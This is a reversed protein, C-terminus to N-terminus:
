EVKLLDIILMGDANGDLLEEFIENLDRGKVVQNAMVPNHKLQSCLRKALQYAESNPLCFNQDIERFSLLSYLAILSSQRYAESLDSKFLNEVIIIFHDQYQLWTKATNLDLYWLMIRGYGWMYSEKTSHKKFLSFYKKQFEDKSSIRALVKIYESNEITMDLIKYLFEFEGLESLCYMKGIWLIVFKYLETIGRTRAARDKKSERPIIQYDKILSRLLNELHQTAKILILTNGLSQLQKSPIYRLIDGRLSNFYINKVIDKIEITKSSISNYQIITSVLERLHLDINPIIDQNRTISEISKKAKKERDEIISKIPIYSVKPPDIMNSDIKKGIVKQSNIEEVELVELLPDQGVKLTFHIEVNIPKNNESLDRAISYVQEKGNILMPERNVKIPLIVRPRDITFSSKVEGFSAVYKAIFKRATQGEYCIPLDDVESPIKLELGGTVEFSIEDLYQGYLAFNNELKQQLIIFFNNTSLNPIFLANQFQQQLVNRIGSLKTYSSLLVFNYNQNECIIHNLDSIPLHDFVIDELNKQSLNYSYFRHNIKLILSIYESSTFKINQFLNIKKIYNFVALLDNTDLNLGKVIKNAIALCINDYINEYPQSLKLADYQKLSRTDIIPIPYPANGHNEFRLPTIQAPTFSDFDYIVLPKDSNTFQQLQEVYSWYRYVNAYIYRSQLSRLVLSNAERVIFIQELSNDPLTLGINQQPLQNKRPTLTKPQAIAMVPIPLFSQSQYRRCFDRYALPLGKSNPILKASDEAFLHAYQCCELYSELNILTTM